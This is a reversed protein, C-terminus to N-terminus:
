LELALLRNNYIHKKLYSGLRGSFSSIRDTERLLESQLSPTDRDNFICGLLQTDTTKLKNVASCLMAQDTQGALVVLLAGDCAAAVRQAPINQANIRNLPSTDIIVSDYRAKWQAIYKELTGPQRLKLIKNREQPASIGTLVIENRGVSILQPAALLGLQESQQIATVTQQKEDSSYMNDISLLQKIAPRYLNLDVLLTSYGALLNRQALAIAISTVGEGSNAACVAIARQPVAFIQAYIQEIEMNQYPINM